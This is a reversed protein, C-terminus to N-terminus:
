IFKRMNIYKLTLELNASAYEGRQSSSIQSISAAMREDVASSCVSTKWIAISGDGSTHFISVNFDM